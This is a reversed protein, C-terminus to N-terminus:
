LTEYAFGTIWQLSFTFAERYDLRSSLRVVVLPRPPNRFALALNAPGRERGEGSVIQVPTRQMRATGVHGRSVTSTSTCEHRGGNRKSRPLTCSIHDDRYNSRGIYVDECPNFHKSIHSFSANADAAGARVCAHVCSCKIM